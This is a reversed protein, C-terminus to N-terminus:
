INDFAARSQERTHIERGVLVKAYEEHSHILMGVIGFCPAEEHERGEHAQYLEVTALLLEEVNGMLAKLKPRIRLMYDVERGKAARGRRASTQGHDEKTKTTTETMGSEM